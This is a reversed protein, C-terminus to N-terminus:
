ILNEKNRKKLRDIEWKDAVPVYESTIFGDRDMCFASGGITQMPEYDGGSNCIYEHAKNADQFIM